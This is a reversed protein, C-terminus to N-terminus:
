PRSNPELANIAAVQPRYGKLQRDNSSGFVRKMVFIFKLAGLM